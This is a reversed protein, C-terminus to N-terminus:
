ALRRARRRYGFATCGVLGAALIAWTAPEPAATLSVGDLLSFPPTGGPAGSAMFAVSMTTTTAVFQYIQQRWPSFGKSPTTATPTTVANVVNFGADAWYVTWAETTNGTFGAQQAAAWYFSLQYAKGVVLNNVTQGIYGQQYAGDQALLAGGTPSTTFGNNSYAASSTGGDPGWLYLNTGPSVVAGTSSATNPQFVFSYATNSWGTLAAGGNGSTAGGTVIYSTTSPAGNVTYTDFNGNTLLEAAAFAPSSIAVLLGAVAVSQVLSTSSWSLLRKVVM